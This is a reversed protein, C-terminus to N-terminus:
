CACKSAMTGHEFRHWHCQGRRGRRWRVANRDIGAALSARRQTPRGGRDNDDAKSVFGPLHQASCLPTFAGPVAFLVAKKGAFLEASNAEKTGDARVLDGEVRPKVGEGPVVTDVHANLFLPPAGPRTGPVRAILNGIEGGVAAAAADFEVTAGLVELDAQLRRMIAGEKRSHSDITVLDLFQQVCRDRNIM